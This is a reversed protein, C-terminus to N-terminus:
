EAFAFGRRGCSRCRFRRGVGGGAGHVSDDVAVDHIGHDSHGAAVSSRELLPLISRAVRDHGGALLHLPCAAFLFPPAVEDLRPIKIASYVSVLAIAVWAALTLAALAIPLTTM